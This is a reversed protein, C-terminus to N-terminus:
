SRPHTKPRNRVRNPLDRRAPPRAYPYVDLPLGPHVSNEGRRRRADSVLASSPSMCWALSPRPRDPVAVCRHPCAGTQTHSRDVVHLSRYCAPPAPVCCIALFSLPPRSRVNRRHRVNLHTPRTSLSGARPQQVRVLVLALVALRHRRSPYPAQRSAEGHLPRPQPAWTVGPNRPVLVRARVYDGPTSPGLRV